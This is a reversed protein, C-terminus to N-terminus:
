GQGFTFIMKYSPSTVTRGASVFDTASPGNAVPGGGGGEGGMGGGGQGAEGGQGGGGASSSSPGSTPTITEDEGCSCAPVAASAIVAVLLWGPVRVSGWLGRRGSM